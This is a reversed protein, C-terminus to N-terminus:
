RQAPRSGGLEAYYNDVRGGYVTDDWSRLESTSYSPAGELQEKTRNVRYGGLSTDYTLENWPLPHYSSGMGLFGGFSMVAYAVQGSRKNVMFNYVSGLREGNQNYVATGEVKNSAILQSTEETAPEGTRTTTGSM